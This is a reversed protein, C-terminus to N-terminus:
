KVRWVTAPTCHAKKNKVPAYGVREILGAKAARVIIAGYARHTPPDPLGLLVCFLRFQEAMFCRDKAYLFGNKIFYCYDNMSKWVNESWSEVVEDAHTVSQKIGADRLEEATQEKKM